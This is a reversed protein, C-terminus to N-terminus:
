SGERSSAVAARRAASRSRQRRIGQAHKGSAGSRRLLQVSAAYQPNAGSLQKKSSSTSM